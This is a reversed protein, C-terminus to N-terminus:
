IINKKIAEYIKHYVFDGNCCFHNDSLGKDNHFKVLNKMDKKEVLERAYIKDQDNLKSFDWVKTETKELKRFGTTEVGASIIISYKEGTKLECIYEGHGIFPCQFTSSAIRNMKKTENFRYFWRFSDSDAECIIKGDVLELM